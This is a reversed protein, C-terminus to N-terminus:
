KSEPFNQRKLMGLPKNWNCPKIQRQRLKTVMSHNIMTAGCSTDFLIRRRKMYKIKMSKRKAISIALPSLLYTIDRLRKKPRLIDAMEHSSDSDTDIADSTKDKKQLKARKQTIMTVYLDLVKAKPSGKSKLNGQRSTEQIWSKAKNKLTVSNVTDHIKNLM